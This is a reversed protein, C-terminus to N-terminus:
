FKIETIHYLPMYILMKHRQLKEKKKSKRLAIFQKDEEKKERLKIITISGWEQTPTLIEM